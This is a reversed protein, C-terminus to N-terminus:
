IVVRKKGRLKHSGVRGYIIEFANTQTGADANSCRSQDSRERLEANEREVNRTSLTPPECRWRGRGVERLCTEPVLQRRAARAGVLAVPGTAAAPKRPKSTRAAAPGSIRQAMRNINERRERGQDRGQDRGEKRRRERAKGGREVLVCAVTQTADLSRPMQLQAIRWSAPGDSAYIRILHFPVPSPLLSLTM